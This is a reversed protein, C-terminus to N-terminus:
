SSGVNSLRHNWFSDLNRPYQFERPFKYQYLPNDELSLVIPSHPKRLYVKRTSVIRPVGFEPLPRDSEREFGVDRPLCPDWYPFRFRECANLYKQKADEGDFSRAVKLM